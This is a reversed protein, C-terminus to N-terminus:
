ERSDNKSTARLSLRDKCPFNRADDVVRAAVWCCFAGRQTLFPRCNCDMGFPVFSVVDERGQCVSQFM